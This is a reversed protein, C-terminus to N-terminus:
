RLHLVAQFGFFRETTSAPSADCVAVDAHQASVEVIQFTELGSLTLERVLLAQISFGLASLAILGLPVWGSTDSASCYGLASM